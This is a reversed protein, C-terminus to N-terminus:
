FMSFRTPNITLNDRGLILVDAIEIAERFSEQAQKIDYCNKVVSGRELHELTAIADGCILTTSNAESLLLGTLGPTVGPLPFLDVGPALSDPASRCHQLLAVDRGLADRLEEDEAEHARKVQEVLNVGITERERESILWKAQPFAELARCTDPKFCTLFVHTIKDPTLNAREGLRAVLAPAPLGPDVLLRLEETEVLATTAHGTRVPQTEGWLANAALTGISIVRIRM